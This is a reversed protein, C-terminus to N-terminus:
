KQVLEWINNGVNKFREKRTYISNRLNKMDNSDNGTSKWGDARMEVFLDKLHLRGRRRLIQEVRDPTTVSQGYPPHAESHFDLSAAADENSDGVEDPFLQKAMALFERLKNWEARVNEASQIIRTLERYRKQAREIPGGIAPM